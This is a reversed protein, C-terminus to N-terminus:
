EGVTTGGFASNFATAPNHQSGAAQAMFGYFELNLTEEEAITVEDAVKITNDKIIYIQALSAENTKDDIVAATDNVTYVYVAGGNPGTVGDLKVWCDAMEYSLGKDGLKDVVEVYLYAQADTKGTITIYPDKPLDVSPLVKYSNGKVLDSTVEDTLVYDGYGQDKAIHEKLTFTGNDTIIGRTSTFTNVVPDSTKASLVALTGAVAICCVLVVALITYITKRKTM